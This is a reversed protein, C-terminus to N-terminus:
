ARFVDGSGALNKSCSFADRCSVGLNLASSSFNMRSRAVGLEQSGVAPKGDYDKLASRIFM